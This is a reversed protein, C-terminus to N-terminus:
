KAFYEIVRITARDRQSLQAEQERLYSRIDIILIVATRWRLNQLNENKIVHREGLEFDAATYLIKDFRIIKRQSIAIYRNEFHRDDAM